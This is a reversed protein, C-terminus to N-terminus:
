TVVRLNRLNESATKWGPKLSLARGYADIAGKRDGKAELALALGYAALHAAHGTNSCDQFQQIAADADEQLLAAFGQGLNALDNDASLDSALSFDRAAKDFRSKSLQMVGRRTLIESRLEYSPVSERYAKTCARLARSSANVTDAELCTKLNEVAEASVGSFATAISSDAFVESANAHTSMAILGIAAASIRFIHKM